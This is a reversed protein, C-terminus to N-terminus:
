VRPCNEDQGSEYNQVEYRCKKTDVYKLVLCLGASSQFSPLFIKSLNLNGCFICFHAVLYFFNSLYKYM